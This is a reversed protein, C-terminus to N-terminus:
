KSRLTLTEPGIDKKAWNPSNGAEIFKGIKTLDPEKKIRCLEDPVATADIVVTRARGAQLSVTAEPLERKRVNATQLLARMVERAAQSRREYRKQRTELNAIRTAIAGAMATAEAEYSILGELAEDLNSESALVLGWTDEDEMLDPYRLKVQEIHSRVIEPNLM